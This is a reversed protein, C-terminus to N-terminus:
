IRIVIKCKLMYLNSCNFFCKKSKKLYTEVLFEKKKHFLSFHTFVLDSALILSVIVEHNQGVSNMSHGVSNMSEHLHNSRTEQSIFTIIFTVDDAVTVTCNTQLDVKM